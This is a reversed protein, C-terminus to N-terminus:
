TPFRATLGAGSPDGSDSGRGTIVLTGNVLTLDTVDFGPGYRWSDLKTGMVADYTIMAFVESGDANTANALLSRGSVEHGL